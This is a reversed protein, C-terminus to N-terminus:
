SSRSVGIIALRGRATLPLLYGLLEISSLDAWHLDELLIVVPKEEALRLLLQEIIAFLRTRFAEGKVQKLIELEADSLDLVLLQALVPYVDPEGPFMKDTYSRLATQAAEEGQEDAIGLHRRLLDLFPGYSLAHSFAFCRGELWTFDGAERQRTDALLRTKGVGAEGYVMAIGGHGANLASLHKELAATENARGMLPSVLGELGRVKDPRIKAGLLEYVTLLDSKGKVQIPELQRFRFGGAALRYTSQSVFIQGRTAAGELRSAVNVTDGMVTYNMRLDSGVNGAIVTGSNVGIHLALPEKLKDSRRKNFREVRNRMSLAAHLAREADDELAIPAGFVAMICDGIFKDVMGEYQYVADALDKLCENMFSAVEEPDLTESLATFGSVDAFIVTVQRREGQVHGTARIKDALQRPIYNQLQALLDDRSGRGDVAEDQQALLSELLSRLPKVALEVVDDGLTTRLAEQAAIAQRLQAIQDDRSNVLSALNDTDRGGVIFNLAETGKADFRQPTKRTARNGGISFM